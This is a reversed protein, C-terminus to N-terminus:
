RTVLSQNAIRSQSSNMGGIREERVFHHRFGGQSDAQIFLRTPALRIPLDSAADAIKPRNARPRWIKDLLYGLMKRAGRPRSVLEFFNPPNM